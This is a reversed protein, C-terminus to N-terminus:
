EDYMIQRIASVHESTKKIYQQAYIICKNMESVLKHTNPITLIKEEFKYNKIRELEDYFILRLDTNSKSRLFYKDDCFKDCKFKFFLHYLSQVTEWISHDDFINCKSKIKKNKNKNKNNNFETPKTTDNSLYICRFISYTIMNKIIFMKLDSIIRKDIGIRQLNIILYNIYTMVPKIDVLSNYETNFINAIHTNFQAITYAGDCIRLTEEDCIYNGAIMNSAFYYYLIGIAQLNSTGTIYKVYVPFNIICSIIADVSMLKSSNNVEILWNVLIFYRKCDMFDYQIKTFKDFKYTDHIEGALKLEYNDNAIDNKNYSFYTNFIKKDFLTRRNTIATTIQTSKNIMNKNEACTFKSNYLTNKINSDNFFAHRVLDKATLRNNGDIVLMNKLLDIFHPSFSELTKLHKDDLYEFEITNDAHYIKLYFNDISDDYHVSDCSIDLVGNVFIMGLSYIDSHYSKRSINVTHIDDAVTINNIPTSNDLSKRHASCLYANLYEKDGGVGVFEALSYDIIKVINNNNLMINPEKLDNHIIGISHLEAIALLMQKYLNKFFSIKKPLTVHEYVSFVDSITCKLMKMCLVPYLLKDNMILGLSMPLIKPSKQYILNMLSIERITSDDILDYDRKYRKAVCEEGNINIMCVKGYSGRGIIKTSLFSDYTIKRIDIVNGNIKIIDNKDLPKLPTFQKNSKNIIPRFIKNIIRLQHHNPAITQMNITEYDFCLKDTQSKSFINTINKDLLMNCIDYQEQHYAWGFATWKNRDNIYNLDISTNIILWKATDYSMYKLSVMLANNQKDTIDNINDDTCNQIIDDTSGAFPLVDDDPLIM